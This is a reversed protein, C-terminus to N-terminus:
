SSSKENCSCTGKRNKDMYRYPQYPDDDQIIYAVYLYIVCDTYRDVFSLRYIHHGPEDNLMGFKFRYWCTNKDHDWLDKHCVMKLDDSVEHVEYLECTKAVHMPISIHLYYSIESFNFVHTAKALDKYEVADMHFVNFKVM